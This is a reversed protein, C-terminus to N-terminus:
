MKLNIIKKLKRNKTVGKLSYKQRFVGFKDLELWTVHSWGWWWSGWIYTMRNITESYFGLGKTQGPKRNWEMGSKWTMRKREQTFTWEGTIELNKIWGKVPFKRRIACQAMGQMGPTTESVAPPGTPQLLRRNYSAASSALWCWENAWRNDLTISSSFNSYSGLLPLFPTFRFSLPPTPTSNHSHVIHWFYFQVAKIESDKVWLIGSIYSSMRPM